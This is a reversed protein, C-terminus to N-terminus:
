LSIALTGAVSGLNIIHGTRRAKFDIRNAAYADFSIPTMELEGKILLQTMSILGLVNTAFMSEVESENIAGVRDVGLVFGANNVADM